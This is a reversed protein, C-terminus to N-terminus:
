IVCNQNPIVGSLILLLRTISTNCPASKGKTKSSAYSANSCSTCANFRPRRTAYGAPGRRRARGQGLRAKSSSCSSISKDQSKVPEDAAIQLHISCPCARSTSAANPFRSQTDIFHFGMPPPVRVARGPATTQSTGAPGPRRGAAATAGTATRTDLSVSIM